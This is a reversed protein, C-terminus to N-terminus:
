WDPYGDYVDNSTLRSVEGGHAPISYLEVENLRLKPGDLNGHFILTRGDRSWRPHGEPRSNRTLRNMEATKVSLVYLEYNLVPAKSTGDRTSDFAIREGDPSWAPNECVHGPPTSTLRKIDKGAADMLYIEYGSWGDREDPSVHLNSHFALMRGDPSWDPSLHRVKPAAHTLQRFGSGDANAVCLDSTDSRTACEFVIRRGNPAWSPNRVNGQFGRILIENPSSKSAAIRYISTRDPRQVHFIISTHDPSWRANGADVGSSFFTRQETHGTADMTYLNYAGNKASVYVIRGRERADARTGVLILFLAVTCGPRGRM